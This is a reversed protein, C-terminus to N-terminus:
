PPPARTHPSAWLWQTPAFSTGRNPPAYIASFKAIAAAFETTPLCNPSCLLCYACHRSQDTEGGPDSPEGQGDSLVQPDHAASCIETWPVEQGMWSSVSHTLTPAFASWLVLGIVLWSTFTFKPKSLIQM